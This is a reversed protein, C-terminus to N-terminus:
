TKGFTFERSETSVKIRSFVHGYVQILLNLVRSFTDMSTSQRMSYILFCQTPYLENITHYHYHIFDTRLLVVM